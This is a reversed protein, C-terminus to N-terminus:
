TAQSSGSSNSSKRGIKCCVRSDNYANDAEVMVKLKDNDVASSCGKKMKLARMEM